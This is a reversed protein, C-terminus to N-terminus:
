VVDDYVLLGIIAQLTVEDTIDDAEGALITRAAPDDHKLLLKFTFQWFCEDFKSRLKARILM